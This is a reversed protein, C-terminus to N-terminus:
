RKRFRERFLQSAATYRHRREARARSGGLKLRPGPELSGPEKANGLRVNAGDGFSAIAGHHLTFRTATGPVGFLITVRKIRMAVRDRTRRTTM